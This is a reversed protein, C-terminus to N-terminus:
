KKEENNGPARRHEKRSSEDRLIDVYSMWGSVSILDGEMTKVYELKLM